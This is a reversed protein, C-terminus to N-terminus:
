SQSSGRNQIKLEKLIEMSAIAITTMHKALEPKGDDLFTSIIELIRQIIEFIGSDYRLRKSETELEPQSESKRKSSAVGPRSARNSNM